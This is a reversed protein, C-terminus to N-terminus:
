ACRRPRLLAHCNGKGRGLAGSFRDTASSSLKAGEGEREGTSGGSDAKAGLSRLKGSAEQGGVSLLPLDCRCAPAEKGHCETLSMHLLKSSRLPHHRVRTCLKPRKIQLIPTSALLGCCVIFRKGLMMSYLQAHSPPQLRLHNLAMPGQWAPVQGQSRSFAQCVSPM